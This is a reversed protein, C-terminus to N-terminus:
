IGAASNFVHFGENIQCVAKWNSQSSSSLDNVPDRYPEIIRFQATAAIPNGDLTHGSRAYVTDGATAVIDMNSGVAAYIEAMTDTGSHSAVSAIWEITPDDWVWAYSSNKSGRTTPSYTTSAPIYSGYVRRNNAVYSCAAVVGIILPSGGATCPAIIGATTLTVVDGPFIATANSSDVEYRRPGKIGAFKPRFGGRLINSM